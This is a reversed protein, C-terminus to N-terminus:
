IANMLLKRTLIPKQIVDANHFGTLKCTEESILLSVSNEGAWDITEKLVEKVEFKNPNAVVAFKM